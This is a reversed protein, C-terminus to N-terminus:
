LVNSGAEDVRRAPRPDRPLGSEGGGGRGRRPGASAFRGVGGAGRRAGGRVRGVAAGHRWGNVAHRIERAVRLIANDNAAAHAEATKGRGDGPGPEHRRDERPDRWEGDATYDLAAEKPQSRSWREALYARVDSDTVPM